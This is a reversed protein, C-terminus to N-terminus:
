TFYQWTSVAEGFYHNLQLERNVRAASGTMDLYRIGKLQPLIQSNIQGLIGIPACRGNNLRGSLREPTPEDGIRLLTIRAM